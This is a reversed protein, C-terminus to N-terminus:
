ENSFTKLKLNFNKFQLIAFVKKTITIYNRFKNKAKPFIHIKQGNQEKIHLKEENTKALQSSFFTIHMLQMFISPVNWNVVLCFKILIVLHEFAIRVWNNWIYVKMDKDLHKLIKLDHTPKINTWSSYPM